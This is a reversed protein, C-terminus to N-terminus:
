VDLRKQFADLLWTEISGKGGTVELWQERVQPSDALRLNRIVRRAVRESQLVEVQTGILGPPPLGGYIMATVPDPKFDVVVSATASYQKPLLMSVTISSAVTLLFVLLAGRWRARLIALFQGFSM